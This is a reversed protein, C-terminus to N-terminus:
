ARAVAEQKAAAAARYNLEINVGNPDRLFIQRITSDPVDTARYTVGAADLRARAGDWDDIALAFHDLAAEDSPRKASELDVLHVVATEGAYLWAGGVGFPPRWGEVLGLADRFFAVTEALRNTGINIHDVGRITM